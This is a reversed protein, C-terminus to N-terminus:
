KLEVSQARAAMREEFEHVETKVDEKTKGYHEQIKGILQERKGAIVDVDDSTLKGWTERVHGKLQMWDGKMTDTNM